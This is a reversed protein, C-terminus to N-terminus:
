FPVNERFCNNLNPTWVKKIKFNKKNINISYQVTYVPRSNFMHSCTSGAGQAEGTAAMRAAELDAHSQCRYQGPVRDGGLSDSRGRKKEEGTGGQWSQDVLQQILSEKRDRNKPLNRAEM